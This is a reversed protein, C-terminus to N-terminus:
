RAHAHDEAPQYAHLLARLREAGRRVHSKVTGLPLGTAASIEGHSLGESYALVVCLREDPALRALARDLDLREGAGPLMVAASELVEENMAITAPPVARLHALWANLALRRLWPGFAAVSRLRPLSRWAQLFVQQALDDALAPDRCLRRLLNRLWSQRRRVLESFAAVDGSMALAVVAAEAAQGLSAGSLARTV